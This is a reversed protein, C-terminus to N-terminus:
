QVSPDGRRVLGGGRIDTTTDCMQSLAERSLDIGLRNSSPLIRARRMKKTPKTPRHDVLSAALRRLQEMREGESHAYVESLEFDGNVTVFCNYFKPEPFPEKPEVVVIRGDEYRAITM